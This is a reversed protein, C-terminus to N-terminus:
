GRVAGGGRRPIRGERLAELPLGALSAVSMLDHRSTAGVLDLVLCDTKGPFLRTGRGIMQTYLTPSKTPRM